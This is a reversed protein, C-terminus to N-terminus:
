WITRLGSARIKADRTLLPLGLALGTAAIIRDPIDPVADRSVSAVADAVARTLPALHMLIDPEALAKRLRDLADAPIRGREALYTMEVLSITAVYLPDGAAAAAAIAASAAPSIEPSGSLYWIVTHTDAVAASM